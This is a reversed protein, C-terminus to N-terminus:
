QISEGEKPKMDAAVQGAIHQLVPVLANVQDEPDLGIAAGRGIANALMSMAISQRLGIDDGPTKIDPNFAVEQTIVADIVNLLKVLIPPLTRKMDENLNMM